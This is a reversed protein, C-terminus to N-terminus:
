PLFLCMPPTERPSWTKQSLVATKQSKHRMSKVFWVDDKVMAECNTKLYNFYNKM